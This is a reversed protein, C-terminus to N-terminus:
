QVKAVKLVTVKNDNIVRVVYLGSPWHNGFELYGNTPNHIEMQRGSLETVDVRLNAVRQGYARLTFCSSSPNPFLKIVNDDEDSLVAVTPSHTYNGDMDVQKLRYYISKSLATYDKYSYQRQVSSTGHGDIRAIAVFSNSFLPDDKIWRELDFYDNNKESATTWQIDVFGAANRKATFNLLEIPLTSDIIFSSPEFLSWAGGREKVRLFFFHVGEPLAPVPISTNFTFDSITSINVPIGNGVGPDTDFFYEARGIPEQVFFERPEYMSWDGATSRIRIFLLHRGPTIPATNISASFTSTGGPVTLPIGNGVGPDTDIFYEAQVITMVIFFERPEYLSWEGTSMRTRIYLLHRGTNLGSTSISVSFTIAESPIPVTLPIGNGVGPDTDFFYEARSITQAHLSISIFSFGIYLFRLSPLLVTIKIGCFQKEWKM